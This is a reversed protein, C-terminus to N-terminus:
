EAAYNGGQQRIAESREAAPWLKLTVSDTDLPVPMTETYMAPEEDEGDAGSEGSGATGSGSGEVEVTEYKRPPIIVEAVYACGPKLGRHVAGNSSGFSIIVEQDQEEEALDVIVDGILLLNEELSYDNFAKRNQDVSEIIM